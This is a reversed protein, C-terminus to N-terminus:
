ANVNLDDGGTRIGAAAVLMGRCKGVVGFSANFSGSTISSQSAQVQEYVTTAHELFVGIRGGGVHRCCVENM